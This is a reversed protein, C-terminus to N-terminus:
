EVTVLGRLGECTAEGIGEVEMLEDISEFPGEESRYDIIRQALTIGIGPLAELLWADAANVNVRQPVDGGCPICVVDGHGLPAGLDVADAAAQPTFGGAADVADGICLACEDIRYIGPDAVEGHVCFTVRCPPEALVIELPPKEWPRQYVLMVGGAVVIVVLAMVAIGRYRGLRRSM